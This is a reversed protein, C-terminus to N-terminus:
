KLNLELFVRELSAPDIIRLIIKIFWILIIPKIRLSKRRLAPITKGTLFGYSFVNEVKFRFTHKM